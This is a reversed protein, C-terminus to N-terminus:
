GSVVLGKRIHALIAKWDGYCPVDPAVEPPRSDALLIPRIGHAQYAAVDGPKDGV